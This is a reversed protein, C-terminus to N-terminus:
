PAVEHRMAILKPEGVVHIGSIELKARLTANGEKLVRESAEQITWNGHFSSADFEVVVSCTVWTRGKM